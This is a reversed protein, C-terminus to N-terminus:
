LEIRHVCKSDILFDLVRYVTPPEANPRKHKLKELIEYAGLPKNNARLIDLIDQRLPTLRM